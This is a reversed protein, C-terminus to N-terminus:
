PLFLGIFSIRGDFEHYIKFQHLLNTSREIPGAVLQPFFSVYLAFDFFDREAQLEGRYVDISYSLAQFTYFSIGVPLLINFSLPQYSVNFFSLLHAVNINFFNFYKFFFLVGLTGLVSVALWLQKGAKRKAKVMLLAAFYNVLTSFLMLLGYEPKYQMYFYYSAFLMLINRVRLTPMLFYLLTVVPFFLLFELSNFLM